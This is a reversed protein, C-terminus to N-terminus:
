DSDMYRDFRRLGYRMGLLMLVLGIAGPIIFFLQLTWAYPEHVTLIWIIIIPVLIAAGIGFLKLSKGM